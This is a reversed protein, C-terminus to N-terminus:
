ERNVFHVIANVLVLQKDSQIKTGGILKFMLICKWFNDDWTMSSHPDDQINQDNPFSLFKSFKQKPNLSLPSGLNFISPNWWSSTPELNRMYLLKQSTTHHNGRTYHLSFTLRSREDRWLPLLTFKMLSFTKLPPPKRVYQMNTKFIILVAPARLIPDGTWGDM